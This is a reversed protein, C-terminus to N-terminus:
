RGRYRAAFAPDDRMVKQGAQARTLSPDEKMAADVRAKYDAQVNGSAKRDQTSGREGTLELQAGTANLSQELSAYEEKTMKESAARLTAGFAAPQGLQLARERFERDLRQDREANATNEAREARANAAAADAQAKEVAERAEPTLASLDIKAAGQPTPQGTGAAAASQAALHDDLFTREEASLTEGAALKASIAAITMKMPAEQADPASDPTISSGAEPTAPPDDTPSTTQEADPTDPDGDATPSPAAHADPDDDEPDDEPDPPPPEPTPAPTAGTLEGLVATLSGVRDALGAAVAAQGTWVEGSGWQEAVVARAKRRGRAVAQIFQAYMADVTKQWEAQAEASFPEYPQGLAKKAASRIYTVVIGWANMMKTYDAHTSIVGISGTIATPTVVIESAQSAVWYAASAAMDNTVAVVRKKTRAYAVADGAEVTGAVTGGPSDMSLVITSVTADDALKRIEAAFRQPNVYGYGEAWAPVRSIVVGHFTVLAVSKGNGRVLPVRQTLAVPQETLDEAGPGHGQPNMVRAHLEDLIPQQIAWLQGAQLAHALFHLNRKM